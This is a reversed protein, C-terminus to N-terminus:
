YSVSLIIRIYGSSNSNKFQHKIKIWSTVFKFFSVEEEKADVQKKMMIM